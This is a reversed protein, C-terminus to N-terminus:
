KAAAKKAPATTTPAADVLPERVEPEPVAVTTTETPWPSAVPHPPAGAARDLAWGLARGTARLGVTAAGLTAAAAHGAARAPLTVADTVTNLPNM